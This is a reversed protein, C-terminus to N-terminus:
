KTAWAEIRVTGSGRFWVYLISRNTFLLSASSEGSTMDGHLTTGNFSYELPGGSELQFTAAQVPFPITIQPVDPFYGDSIALSLKDFFNYDVM